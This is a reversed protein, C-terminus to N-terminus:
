QCWRTILCCRLILILMYLISKWSACFASLLQNWHAQLSPHLQSTQSLGKILTNILTTGEQYRIYLDWLSSCSSEFVLLKSYHPDPKTCSESPEHGMAKLHQHWPSSAVGKRYLPFKMFRVCSDPPDLLAAIGPSWFNSQKPFHESSHSLGEITGGKATGDKLPHRLYVLKLTVATM